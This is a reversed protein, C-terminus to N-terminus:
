IERGCTICFKWGVELESNCAPCHNITLNHGCTPCFVISRGEPLAGGCFRCPEGAHARVPNQRAVPMSSPVKPTTPAPASEEAARRTPAPPPPPPTETASPPTEVQVTPRGAMTAQEVPSPNVSTAVLSSEPTPRLMVERLPEPAFAVTSTAWARYVSLDPSPSELERRLAEQMEPDGRLLGRSGSLLQCLALEYDDNSAFGLERRNTRYAVLHQYVQSVEFARGLLEPAGARVNHVLRRYLRDLEDM